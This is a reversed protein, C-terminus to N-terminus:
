CHTRGTPSRDRHSYRRYCSAVGSRSTHLMRPQDMSVRNLMLGDMTGLRGSTDLTRESQNILATLVQDGTRNKQERFNQRVRAGCRAESLRQSYSSM